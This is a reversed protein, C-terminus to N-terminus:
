IGFDHFVVAKIFRQKNWANALVQM